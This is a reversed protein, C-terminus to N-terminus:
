TKLSAVDPSTVTPSDSMYRMAIGITAHNVWSAGHCLITKLDEDVDHADTYNLFIKSTSM